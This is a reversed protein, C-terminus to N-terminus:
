MAVATRAVERWHEPLTRDGRESLDVYNVYLEDLAGDLHDLTVTIGFDDATRIEIRGIYGRTGLLSPNQRVDSRLYISRCLGCDCEAWVRTGSPDVDAWSTNAQLIDTIWAREQATLEREPIPKRRAPEIQRTM